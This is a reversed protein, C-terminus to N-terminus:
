EGEALDVLNGKITDVNEPTIRTRLAQELRGFGSQWCKQSRCLYAGRGSLRGTRDVIVEGGPKRVLRVLDRKDGISRCAVCTRQPLKKCTKVTKMM